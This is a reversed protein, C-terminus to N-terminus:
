DNPLTTLIRLDVIRWGFCHKNRLGMTYNLNTFLGNDINEMANSSRHSINLSVPWVSTLASTVVAPLIVARPWPTWQCACSTAGFLSGPFVHLISVQQVKKCPHSLHSFQLTLSPLVTLYSLHLYIYMVRPTSHVWTYVIAPEIADHGTPRWLAKHM